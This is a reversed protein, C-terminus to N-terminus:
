FILEKVIKNSKHILSGIKTNIVGYSHISKFNQMLM